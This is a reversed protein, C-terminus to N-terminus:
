GTSQQSGVMYASICALLVFLGDMPGFLSAFTFTEEGLEELSIGLKAIQSKIHEFVIFKAALIGLISIGAAVIGALTGDEDEHGMAMGLGAVFGLGWAIWGIEYDFALVVGGWVAAGLAAGIASFLAGRALSASYRSASRVRSKSDKKPSLKKGSRLDFGCVTCLIAIESLPAGCSTCQKTAPRDTTAQQVVPGRAAEAAFEEDLLSGLEPEIASAVPVPIPIKIRQNCKACKASKGALKDKVRYKEKCKPCAFEIPM